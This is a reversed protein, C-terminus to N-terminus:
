TFTRKMAIGQFAFLQTIVDKYDKYLAIVSDNEDDVTPIGLIGVIKRTKM